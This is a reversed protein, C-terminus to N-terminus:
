MLLTVFSSGLHLWNVVRNKFDVGWVDLRGGKEATNNQTRNDGGNKDNNARYDGRNGNLLTVTTMLTTIIISFREGSLHRRVSGKLWKKAPLFSFFNTNVMDAQVLTVEVWLRIGLTFFFVSLTVRRNLEFSCANIVCFRFFTSDVFAILIFSPMQTCCRIHFFYCYMLYHACLLCGLQVTNGSQISFATRLEM